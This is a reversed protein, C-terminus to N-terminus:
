PAVPLRCVQGGWTCLVAYRSHEDIRVAKAGSDLGARESHQRGDETRWVRVSRDDSATAVYNGDYSFAAGAIVDGHAAVDHSIDGTRASWVLLRGDWGGSAIWRGDRSLAVAGIQAGHHRSTLRAGGGVSDWTRVTGDESGTVVSRRSSALAVCTIAERHGRLVRRVALDPLDLLTASGDDCGVVLLRGDYSVAMATPTADLVCEARQSGEAMTWLRIYRDLGISVVTRGDGAGAVGVVAGQHSGLEIGDSGAGVSVPLDGIEDVAVFRVAGSRSGVVLGRLDDTLWLASLAHARENVSELHKARLDDTMRQLDQALREVIGRSGIGAIAALDPRKPLSTARSNAAQQPIRAAMAALHRAFPSAAASAAAVNSANASASDGFRRLSASRAPVVTSGAEAAGEDDDDSDGIVIFAGDDDDGDSPSPEAAASAPAQVPAPTQPKASPAAAAAVPAAVSPPPAAVRIAPAIVPVLPIVSPASLPARVPRPPRPPVVPEVAAIHVTPQQRFAIEDGDLMAPQGISTAEDVTTGGSVEVRTSQTKERPPLRVRISSPAEDTAAAAPSRFPSPASGAPPSPIPRASAPLASSATLAVPEKGRRAAGFPRAPTMTPVPGVSTTPDELNAAAPPTRLAKQLAVRMTAADAWREEPDKALVREVVAAIAPRVVGPARTALPPVPETVQMMVIALPSEAYFPLAGTLCEYLLIGLAYLDCRADVQRGMAQEPSMHTPTGIAKGAQTLTADIEKVIGFDLVKVIAESAAVEHLFINAPKLDRHVLGHAHAEGLSRLVAVGIEVAEVEDMRQKRTAFYALRDQLTEGVLREMALFLDGRETQGFDFVRVTNPHSLRSTTAAEKFFRRALEEGEEGPQQALVKLAVAHGTTVHEVEYVTGFGGRGLVGVVRYRAGVVEGAVLDGRMSAVRRVTPTGDAACNDGESVAGCKPCYRM